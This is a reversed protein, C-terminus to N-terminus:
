KIAPCYYDLEKETGKERGPVFCTIESQIFLNKWLISFDFNKLSNYFTFTM